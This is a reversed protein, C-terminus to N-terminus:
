TRYAIQVHFTSGEGWGYGARGPSVFPDKDVWLTAGAQGPGVVPIVTRLLGGTGSMSHIGSGSAMFDAGAPFGPPLSFGITGLGLSAGRGSQIMAQVTVKDGEVWYLGKSVHTDGRNEFGSWAPTYSLANVRFPYERWGWVGNSQLEYRWTSSGLKVAAGPSKLYDLALKHAVEVGGPGPWCRLDIIQQPQTEGGKWQVLWAPQDDVTGPRNERASPIAAASGGRISVYSTPGGGTPQWDRRPAILDWRLVGNAPAVSDVRQPADLEDWVGHGFFKGPALNVAYPTTPHASLKLADGIVGYPAGRSIASEAWVTEKVGEGPATDYFTSKTAM